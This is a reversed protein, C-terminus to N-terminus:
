ELEGISALYDVAEKYLCYERHQDNLNILAGCYFCRYEDIGEAYERWENPNNVIRKYIDKIDKQQAM